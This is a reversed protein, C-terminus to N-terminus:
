VDNEERELKATFRNETPLVQVPAKEAVSEVAFVAGPRLVYDRQNNVEVLQEVKLDDAHDVNHEPQLARFVNQLPDAREVIEELYGNELLVSVRISPATVVDRYARYRLYLVCTAM